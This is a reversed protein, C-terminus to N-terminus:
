QHLEEFIVVDTASRKVELMRQGVDFSSASVDLCRPFRKGRETFGVQLSDEDLATIQVYLTQPKDEDTLMTLKLVADSQQWELFQAFAEKSSSM